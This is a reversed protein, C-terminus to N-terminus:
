THVVHVFATNPLYESTLWTFDELFVGVLLNIMM